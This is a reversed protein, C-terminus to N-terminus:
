VVKDLAFMAEHPLNVDQYQLMGWHVNVWGMNIYEHRKLYQRIELFSAEGQKEYTQEWIEQFLAVDERVMDKLARIQVFAFFLSMKSVNDLTSLGKMHLRQTRRGIVRVFKEDGLYFIGM